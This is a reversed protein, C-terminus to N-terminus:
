TSIMRYETISLMIALQLEGGTVGRWDMGLTDVLLIYSSVKLEVVVRCTDYYLECGLAGTKRAPVSAVHLLCLIDDYM